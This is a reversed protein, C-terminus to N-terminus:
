VGRQQSVSIPQLTEGMLAVTPVLDLQEVLNVLRFTPVEMNLNVAVDGAGFVM